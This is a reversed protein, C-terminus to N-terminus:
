WFETCGLGALEVGGGACEVRAEGVRGVACRWVSGCVVEVWVLGVWGVEGVGGKGGCGM